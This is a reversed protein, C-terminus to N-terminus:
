NEHSTGLSIMNDHFSPMESNGKYLTPDVVAGQKKAVAGAPPIVLLEADKPLLTEIHDDCYGCIGGTNNHYLV